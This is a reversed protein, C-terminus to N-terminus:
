FVYITDLVMTASIVGKFINMNKQLSTGVQKDLISWFHEILNLYLSQALWELLESGQRDFYAKAIRSTHKPDNGQQLIFSRLDLKEASFELNEELISLYM